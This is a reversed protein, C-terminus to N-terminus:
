LLKFLNGSIEEQTKPAPMGRSDKEYCIIREWGFYEAAYKGAEYCKRLYGPDTEHIDKKARTKEAREDILKLAVDPHM